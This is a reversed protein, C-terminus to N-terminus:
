SWSFVRFAKRINSFNALSNIDSFNALSNINSFNALSNLAAKKDLEIKYVRDRNFGHLVLTLLEQHVISQKFLKSDVANGQM